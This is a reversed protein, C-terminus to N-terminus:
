GIENYLTAVESASLERNFIRVQDIYFGSTGGEQPAIDTRYGGSNYNATSTTSATSAINSNNVYIKAYGNPNNTVVMHQWTQGNNSWNGSTLVSTTSGTNYHRIEATRSGNKRPYFYWWCNSGTITFHGDGSDQFWFSYSFTRSPALQSALGDGEVRIGNGVNSGASAKVYGGFKGGTLYNSKATGVSGNYNGSSDTALTGGTNFEFFALDSGDGFIDAINYTAPPRLIMSFARDSTKSNATARLTFSLTTDASVDTPDGSIAGTSSDISLNQGSLVTGGTESYSVTDGDPDSAAVTFHTGTDNSFITGLSGSATSWTPANDVYVASSLFGELGSTNLVKIDYPEKSGDFSSDTFNATISTASHVTVTSATIVSGDVTSVAKVIAGSGFNTGTITMNTTSGSLSEIEGPNVSSVAPPTDLAKWNTGDYYEALNITTNFRIQGTNLSSPRQATTGAPLDFYGTSTNNQDSVVTPTPDTITAWSADTGDTTLYKGSHGTQTPVAAGAAIKAATVAGDAIENTGISGAALDETGKIIDALKRARSKAM